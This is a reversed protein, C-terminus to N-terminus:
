AKAILKQLDIVEHAPPTDIDVGVGFDYLEVTIDMSLAGQAPVEMDFGVDMRRALGDDDIWVDVPFTTVGMLEILQDVSARVSRRLESPIEDLSQELAKELDVQARYHTTEVGRVDETGIEAIQDSAGRLYMLMQSPDAQNAQAFQAFGRLGAQEWLKQLDMKLWSKGPPLGQRAARPLQMYFVFGDMVQKVSGGGPLVDSMDFTAESRRGDYDFTGEGSMTMPRPLGTGSMKLEFSARSSGADATKTAAEAVAAEPSLEDGGCALPLAALVFAFLALTRRM